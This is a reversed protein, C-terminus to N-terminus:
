ATLYANICRLCCREPTDKLVKNFQEDTVMTLSPAYAHIGHGCRGGELHVKARKKLYGRMPGMAFAPFQAPRSGQRTAGPRDQALRLAAAVGLIPEGDIRSLESMEARAREADGWPFPADDMRSHKTTANM